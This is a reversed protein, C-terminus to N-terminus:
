IYEQPTEGIAENANQRQNPSQQDNARDLTRSLFFVQMEYILEPILPLAPKMFGYYWKTGLLTAFKQVEDPSSEEARIRHVMVAVFRKYKIWHLPSSLLSTWTDPVFFHDAIPGSGPDPEKATAPVGQPEQGMEEGDMDM